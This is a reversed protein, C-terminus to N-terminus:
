DRRTRLRHLTVVAAAIGAIDSRNELQLGNLAAPYDPIEATRLLEDAYEALAFIKTM